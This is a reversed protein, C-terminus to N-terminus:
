NAKQVPIPILPSPSFPHQSPHFLSIYNKQLIESILYLKMCQKYGEHVVSNNSVSKIGMFEIVTQGEVGIQM